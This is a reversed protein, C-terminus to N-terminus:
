WSELLLHKNFKDLKPEDSLPIHESSVVINIGIGVYLILPTYVLWKDNCFELSILQPVSTSLMPYLIDVPPSPFRKVFPPDPLLLSVQSVSISLWVEPYVPVGLPNQKFVSSGLGYRM